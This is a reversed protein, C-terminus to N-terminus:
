PPRRRGRRARLSRDGRRASSRGCSRGHSRTLRRNHRLRDARHPRPRRSPRRSGAPRMAQAPDAGVHDIAQDLKSSRKPRGVEAGPSSASRSSSAMLRSLFFRSPRSRNTEVAISRGRPTSRPRRRRRPGCGDQEVSQPFRPHREGPLRAHGFWVGIGVQEVQEAQRHDRAHTRLRSSGQQFMESRGASHEDAVWASSRPTSPMPGLSASFITWARRSQSASASSASQRRRSTCSM